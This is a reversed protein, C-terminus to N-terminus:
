EDRLEALIQRARVDDGIRMARRFEGQMTRARSLMIDRERSEDIQYSMIGLGLRLLTEESALGARAVQDLSSYVRSFVFSRLFHLRRGNIALKERDGIKVPRARLFSYIPRMAPNDSYERRIIDRQKITKGLFLDKEFALEIPYTILPTMNGLAARLFANTDSMAWDRSWDVTFFNNLVIFKPDEGEKRPMRFHLSDQVRQPIYPLLEEETGGFLRLKGLSTFVVPKEKVLQYTYPIAARLFGYFPFIRRMVHLEFNTLSEWSFMFERTRKAIQGLTWGQELRRMTYAFIMANEAGASTRTFGKFMKAFRGAIPVNEAWTILRHSNLVAVDGANPKGAFPGALFRMADSTVKGPMGYQLDTRAAYTRWLNEEHFFQMLSQRPMEGYATRVPRTSGTLTFFYEKLYRPNLAAPGTEFMARIIADGANRFQFAFWPVTVSWRFADQAWDFGRLARSILPIKGPERLIETMGEAAWKPIMFNEPHVWEGHYEVVFSRHVKPFPVLRDLDRTPEPLKGFLEQPRRRAIELLEQAQHGTLDELRSVNATRELIVGMRKTMGKADFVQKLARVQEPTVPLRILEHSRESVNEIAPGPNRVMAKMREPDDLFRRWEALEEPRRFNKRAVTLADRKVKAERTRRLIDLSETQSPKAGRKIRDIDAVLKRHLTEYNQEMGEFQRTVVEMTRIRERMLEKAAPSDLALKGTQWDDVLRKANDFQAVGEQVVAAFRRLDEVHAAAEKEPMGLTTLQREHRALEEASVSPIGKRKGSIHPAGVRVKKAQEIQKALDGILLPNRAGLPKAKEAALMNELTRVRSQRVQTELASIATKESKFASPLPTGPPRTVQERLFANDARKRLAKTVNDLEVLGSRLEEISRRAQQKVGEEATESALVAERRQIQEKVIDRISRRTAAIDAETARGRMGRLKDLAANLDAGRVPTGQALQVAEDLATVGMAKKADPSLRELVTRGAVETRYHGFNDVFEQMLRQQLARDRSTYIRDFMVEFFNQNLGNRTAEDWPMLIQRQKAWWDYVGLREGRDILSQIKDFQDWKQPFYNPLPEYRLGQAADIARTEDLLGRFAQVKEQLHPPLEKLLKAAMEPQGITPHSFYAMDHMVRHIERAEKPAIWRVFKGAEDKVAAKDLLAQMVDNRHFMRGKAFDRYISRAVEDELLIDYNFLKGFGRKLDTLMSATGAAARAIIPAKGLLQGARRAARAAPDILYKNLATDYALGIKDATKSRVITRGFWKVGGKDAYDLLGRGALQRLNAETVEKGTAQLVDELLDMGIGKTGLLTELEERTARKIFEVTEDGLPAQLLPLLRNQARENLEALLVKKGEPLEVLLRGLLRKDRAMRETLETVAERSVKGGGAEILERALTRYRFGKLMKRGIRNLTMSGVRAASRAVGLGTWSLPDLLVDLTFGLAGRAVKGATSDPTWGVDDLWNAFTFRATPDGTWFQTAGKAANTFAQEVPSEGQLWDTIGQVFGAVSYGASGIVDLLLIFPNRDPHAQKHKQAEVFLPHITDERPGQRQQFSAYGGRMGSEARRRLAETQEELEQLTIPFDTM